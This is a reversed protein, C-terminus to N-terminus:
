RPARQKKAANAREAPSLSGDRNADAANFQRVPGALAEALAVRGDKNTDALDFDRDPVAAGRTANALARRNAAIFEARSISGNKDGDLAGFMANFRANMAADRAAASEARTVFGDRNADMRGFNAKIQGEMQGRPLPANANQASASAGIAILAIAVFLTKM